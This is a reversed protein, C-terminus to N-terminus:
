DYEKISVVTEGQTCLNLINPNPETEILVKKGRLEQARKIQSERLNFTQHTPKIIVLGNLSLFEKSEPLDLTLEARPACGPLAQNYDLSKLIGPTQAHAEVILLSLLLQIM